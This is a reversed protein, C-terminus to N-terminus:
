YVWITYDWGSHHSASDCPKNSQRSGSLRWYQCRRFPCEHNAGENINSTLFFVPTAEAWFSHEGPKRGFSADLIGAAFHCSNVASHKEFKTKHLLFELSVPIHGDGFTLIAKMVLKARHEINIAGCFCRTTQSVFHTNNGAILIDFNEGKAESRKWAQTVFTVICDNVLLCVNSM